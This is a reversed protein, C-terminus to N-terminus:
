DVPTQNSRFHLSAAMDSVSSSICGKRNPSLGMGLVLNLCYIDLPSSATLVTPKRHIVFTLNSKFCFPAAKDLLSIGIGVDKNPSWSIVFGLYFKYIRDMASSATFITVEM